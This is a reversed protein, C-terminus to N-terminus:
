LLCTCITNPILSTQIRNNGRGLSQRDEERWQTEDPRKEDPWTEERKVERRTRKIQGVMFVAFINVNIRFCKVLSVPFQPVDCDEELVSMQIKWRLCGGSTPVDSSTILVRM